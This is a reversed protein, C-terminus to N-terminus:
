CGYTCHTTSCRAGYCYYSGHSGGLCAYRDICSFYAGNRYVCVDQKCRTDPCGSGCAALASEPVAAGFLGIAGLLVVGKAVRRVISRRSATGGTAEAEGEIGAHSNAMCASVRSMREIRSESRSSRENLGRVNVHEPFHLRIDKRNQWDIGARTCASRFIPLFEELSRMDKVDRAPVQIEFDNVSAITQLPQDM